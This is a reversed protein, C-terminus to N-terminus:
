CVWVMNLIGFNTDTTLAYAGMAGTAGYSAFGVGFSTGQLPISGDCATSTSLVAGGAGFCEPTYSREHRSSRHRGRRWSGTHAGGAAALAMMAAAVAASRSTRKRKAKSNESVVVWSESSTNWIVRYQKNM